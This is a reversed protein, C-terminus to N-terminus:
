GNVGGYLKEVISKALDFNAQLRAYGDGRLIRVGDVARSIAHHFNFKVGFAAGNFYRQINVVVDGNQFGSSITQHATQWTDPAEDVLDQQSRSFVELWAPDPNNEVFSFNHGIGNVPTHQLENLINAAAEEISAFAGIEGSTSQFIVADPRAIYQCDAVTYKLDQFVASPGMPMAVQFQEHMPDRKFGNAVVWQPSLIAPNWAGTIVLTTEEPQLQM